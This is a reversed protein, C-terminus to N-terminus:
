GLCHNRPCPRSGRAPQRWRTRTSPSASARPSSTRCSRVLQARTADSFPLRIASRTCCHSWRSTPCPRSRCRRGPRRSRPPSPCPCLIRPSRPEDSDSSHSVAPRGRPKLRAATTAPVFRIPLHEAPGRVVRLRVHPVRVDTGHARRGALDARVAHIGYTPDLFRLIASQQKSPRPDPIPEVSRYVALVNGPQLGAATGKDITIVYGRGTETNSFPVKLITAAIEKDPARPVYNAVTERPAPVLRDGVLVELDASEIRVTALEGFKEVRATGIFKSEYGLV